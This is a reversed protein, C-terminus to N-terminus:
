SEVRESRLPKIKGTLCQGTELDFEYHHGLCRIVGGPLLEATERLDQGAHPCYRQIRYTRGESRVLITEEADMATEFKEVAELAEPWAFKLLGLLHDNYLDPDRRAQFRLSLFFDEWPVKRDLIPALWRSELRYAYQCDGLESFVGESGPRFDVSFTGGGPGTVEFGVRMGVKENFYPSMDLVHEFYERFRDWLSDEPEPYRSRVAAVQSTRRGAYEALYEEQDAFSFGDWEPDSEKRRAQADWTDGPLLLETSDIGEAKLWGIVQAQDPFIGAKGMEQNHHFLDEDLFSPPGAFPLTLIPEVAQVARAMYAFKALRKAMSLERRREPPYEYCIPYWSAGAGQLAFVDIRGGVEARISRLQPLSLRADNMNLLCHGGTQVVMASDHNMPSEESVFFAWVGPAVEFREWPALQILKRQGASLIKRPLAESPYRPTIVPVEPPVRALFWPDVHDMHEHSILIATPRLLEPTLLHLNEPYQFWSAQFCGEPSFWPDCLVTSEGSEIKLGAHGLATIRV